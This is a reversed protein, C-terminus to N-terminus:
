IRDQNIISKLDQIKNKFQKPNVLAEENYYEKLLGEIEHPFELTFIKVNGNSKVQVLKGGKCLLYATIYLDKFDYQFREKKMELKERREM